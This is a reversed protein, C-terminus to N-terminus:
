WVEEMLIIIGDCDKLISEILDKARAAGRVTERNAAEVSRVCDVRGTEKSCDAHFGALVCHAAAKEVDLM